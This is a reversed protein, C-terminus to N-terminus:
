TVRQQRLTEAQNQLVYRVIAERDAMSIRVFGVTIHFMFTGLSREARTSTVQGMAKITVQINPLDFEFKLNTGVDLPAAAVLVLESGSIRRIVAKFGTVASTRDDLVSLRRPTIQVDLPFYRRQGIGQILGPRRLMIMPKERSHQKGVIESAFSWAQSDARFYVTVRQGDALAVPRGGWLPTAVQVTSQDLAEIRSPYTLIVDGNKMELEVPQGIKLKVNSEM